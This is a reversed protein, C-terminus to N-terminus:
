DGSGTLPDPIPLTPNARQVMRVWTDFQWRDLTRADRRQVSEEIRELRTTVNVCWMTASVTIGVVGIVIGLPVWTKPTLTSQHSASSDGDSGHNM